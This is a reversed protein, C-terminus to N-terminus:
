FMWGPVHILKQWQMDGNKLTFILWLFQETKWSGDKKNEEYCNFVDGAFLVGDDWKECCDLKIIGRNIEKGSPLIKEEQIVEGNKNLHTLLAPSVHSIQNPYPCYGCLFIDGNPMSAASQYCTAGLKSSSKELNSFHSWCIKGTADTKIAGAAAGGTGIVFGGDETPEVVTAGGRIEPYEILVEGEIEFKSANSVYKCVWVTLGVVVLGVLLLFVSQKWFSPRKAVSTQPQM